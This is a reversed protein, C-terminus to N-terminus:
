TFFYLLATEFAALLALGACLYISFVDRDYATRTKDNTVFRVRDGFVSSLAAVACGLVPIFYRAQVGLISTSGLTSWTCYFGTVVVAYVVLATAAFIWKDAKPRKPTEDAYLMAVVAILTPSLIGTLVANADLWGFLGMKGLYFGNMYGDVAATLVYRVPNALVYNIQALVNVGDPNGIAQIGRMFLAAYGLTAAYVAVGAALALGFAILRPRKSTKEGLKFSERPVTFLLLALPAYLPKIAIIGGFCLALGILARWDLTEKFLLGLLLLLLAFLCSDYSFSGGMFLLLPFLATLIVAGRYRVAWKLAFYACLALLLVNMLRGLYFGILASGFLRGIAVGVAPVLYPFLIQMPSSYQRGTYDGGAQELYGGLNGLVSAGGKDQVEKYFNGPFQDVLLLVDDPYDFAADFTFDGCAVTYARLYHWYEDPAQMPASAVCFVAGCVLVCAALKGHPSRVRQTVFWVAGYLASFAVWGGLLLLDDLGATATFLRPAQFAALLVVTQLWVYWRVWGNLPRVPKSRKQLVTLAVVLLSTLVFTWLLVRAPSFTERLIYANLLVGSFRVTSRVQETPYIRLSYLEEADLRATYVGDGVKTLPAMYEGRTGGVVADYYLVTETSDATDRYLLVTATQAWMGDLNEILFFSNYALAYYKNEGTPDFEWRTCETDPIDRLVVSEQPPISRNQLRVFGLELLVALALVACAVAALLVPSKKKPYTPMPM